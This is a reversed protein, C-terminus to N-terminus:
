RGGGKVADLVGTEITATERPGSSQIFPLERGESLSLVATVSVTEVVKVLEPDRRKVWEVAAEMNTIQNTGKSSRFAVSGFAFRITRGKAKRLLGRAFEVLLDRYRWDWWALRDREAKELADLQRNLAARRAQLAVIRAEVRSRIELVEDARETSDITEVESARTAALGLVEGTEVDYLWGESDVATANSTAVTPPPPTVSAMRLASM